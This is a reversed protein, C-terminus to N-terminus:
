DKCFIWWNVCLGRMKKAENNEREAKKLHTDRREEAQKALRYYNKEETKWTNKWHIWDALRQTEKNKIVGISENRDYALAVSLMNRYYARVFEDEWIWKNGWKIYIFVSKYTITCTDKNRRKSWEAVDYLWDEVTDYSYYEWWDWHVRTWAHQKPLTRSRAFKMNWRNNHKRGLGKSGYLSEMWIKWMVVWALSVKQWDITCNWDFWTDKKYQEVVSSVKDKVSDINSSDADLSLWFIRMALVVIALLIYLKTTNM